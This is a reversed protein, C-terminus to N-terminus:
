GHYGRNTKVTDRVRNFMARANNIAESMEKFMDTFVM